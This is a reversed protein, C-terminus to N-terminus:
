RLGKNKVFSVLYDIMADPYQLRFKSYEFAQKSFNYKM